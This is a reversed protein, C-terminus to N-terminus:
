YYILLLDILNYQEGTGLGSWLYVANCVARYEYGPPYKSIVSLLGCTLYLDIMLITCTLLLDVKYQTLFYVFFIGWNLPMIM